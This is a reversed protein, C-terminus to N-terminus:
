ECTKKIEAIRDELDKLYAKLDRAEQHLGAFKANPEASGSEWYPNLHRGYGQSLGLGRGGGFGPGRGRGFRGYSARGRSGLDTRNGTGCYGFGGGTMPGKGLPGSGDFGPM